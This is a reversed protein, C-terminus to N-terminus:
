YATFDVSVDCESAGEGTLPLNQTEFGPGGLPHVQCLVQLSDGPALTHAGGQDNSFDGHMEGVTFTVAHTSRNTITLFDSHYDNIQVREFHFHETSFTLDQWGSAPITCAPSTSFESTVSDLGTPDTATFTLKQADLCEIRAGTPWAFLGQADAVVTGLYAAGEGNQPNGKRPKGEVTFVEVVYFPQTTGQVQGLGPDYVLPDPWGIDRNSTKTISNPTVANKGKADALDIGPGGNGQFSTQSVKVLSGADAFVGSKADDHVEGGVVEGKAGDGFRAGDGKNQDIKCDKTAVRGAGAAVFLGDLKNKSMECSDLTTAKGRSSAQAGVAANKDFVCNTISFDGDLDFKAGGGNTGKGNGSAHESDMTLTASSGLTVVFGFNKNSSSDDDSLSFTPSQSDDCQATIGDLFGKVTNKSLTIPGSSLIEAAGVAAFIGRSEGKGSVTNNSITVSVREVHIGEAVGSCRIVNSDISVPDPLTALAGGSEVQIAAAADKATLTNNTITASRPAVLIGPGKSTNQDVTLDASQVADVAFASGPGTFQNGVISTGDDDALAIAAADAAPRFKNPEAVSGITTGQAKGVDVKATGSFTCGLIQAGVVGDNVNVDTDVFAIGDVKVSDAVIQLADGAGLSSITAPGQVVLGVASPQMSVPAELAVSKVGKGFAVVDGAGAAALVARLSGAPPNAADDASTTVVLTAASAATAAGLAGVFAAARAANWIGKRSVAM